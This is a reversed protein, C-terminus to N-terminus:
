IEVTAYLNWLGGYASTAFAPTKCDYYYLRTQLEVTYTGADLSVVATFTPYQFDGAFTYEYKWLSDGFMNLTNIQTGDILRHHVVVGGTNGSSIPGYIPESQYTQGGVPLPTKDYNLELLADAYAPAVMRFRVKGGSFPMTFRGTLAGIPSMSMVFSSSALPIVTDSIQISVNQLDPDFDIPGTRPIKLNMDVQPFMRGPTVSWVVTTRNISRMLMEMSNISVDISSILRDFKPYWPDDGPQPFEWQYYTTPNAM